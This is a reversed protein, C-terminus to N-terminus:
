NLRTTNHIYNSRETYVLSLKRTIRKKKAQLRKRQLRAVRLKTYNKGEWNFQTTASHLQINFQTRASHLKINNLTTKEHGNCHLYIKGGNRILQIENATLVVRKKKNM